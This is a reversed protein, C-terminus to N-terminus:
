FFRGYLLKITIDPYKIFPKILLKPRLYGAKLCRLFHNIYDIVYIRTAEEKYQNGFIKYLKINDNAYKLVKDNISNFVNTVGSDNMRYVAMIDAMGRVKGCHASSLFYCLDGFSKIEHMSIKYVDSELVTKRILISATPPRHTSTYLEPGTYDRNEINSYLEDPKNSGEHHRLAQHFCMSYEPHSELFDVQKQLKLPDTWYDDGECIAMYKGTMYPYMVESLKGKSYQNEKELIPVILNPYKEAYEQIISATADTSADDHVIAKVPFNTKQMVFGDLCQRIYKEQNYALCRITVMIENEEMIM